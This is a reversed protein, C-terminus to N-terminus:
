NQATCNIYQVQSYHENITKYEYKHLRYKFANQTKACLQKKKKSGM